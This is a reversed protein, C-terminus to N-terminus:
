IFYHIELPFKINGIVMFRGGERLGLRSKKDADTMM